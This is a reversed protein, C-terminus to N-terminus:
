DRKLVILPAIKNNLIGEQYKKNSIKLGRKVM